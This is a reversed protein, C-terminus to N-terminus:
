SSKQTTDLTVTLGDDSVIYDNKNYTIKKGPKYTETGVVNQPIRFSTIIQPIQEPSEIGLVINTLADVDSKLPPQGFGAKTLSNTISLRIEEISKGQKKAKISQLIPILDPQEQLM